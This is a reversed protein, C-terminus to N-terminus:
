RTRRPTPAPRPRSRVRPDRHTLTGISAALVVTGTTPPDHVERAGALGHLRAPCVPQALLEDGADLSRPGAPGPLGHGAGGDVRRRRPRPAGARPLCRVALRVHGPGHRRPGHGG